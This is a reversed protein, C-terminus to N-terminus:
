SAPSSKHVITVYLSSAVIAISGAISWTTPVAGWFLFGLLMSWVLMSYQMPVVVTAEAARLAEIVLYHCLAFSLAMGSFLLMDKMTPWIWGFPSTLASAFTLVLVNVFLMSATSHEKTARRTAVDRLAGATAAALAALVGWNWESNFPDTVLVVGALGVIIAAAHRFDVKEGLMPKALAALILPSALAVAVAVALDLLTLSLLFSASTLVFYTARPLHSALDRPRVQGLGGYKTCVVLIVLLVVISRVFLIEGPPYTLSIWKSFADNVTILFSAILMYTIGRMRRSAGVQSQTPDLEKRM